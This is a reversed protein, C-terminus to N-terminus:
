CRACAVCVHGYGAAKAALLANRPDPAQWALVAGGEHLYRYGASSSIDNDDRLDKVRTGDRFWRPVLVAQAWPTLARTGKRTGRREREAVLLTALRLVTRESFRLKGVYAFSM